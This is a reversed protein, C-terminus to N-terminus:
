VSVSLDLVSAVKFSYYGETHTVVDDSIKYKYMFM